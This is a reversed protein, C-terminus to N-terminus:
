KVIIADLLHKVEQRFKWDSAFGIFSRAYKLHKGSAYIQSSSMQFKFNKFFTSFLQFNRFRWKIMWLSHYILFDWIDTWKQHFRFIEKLILTFIMWFTVLSSFESLWVCISRAVTSNSKPSVTQFVPFNLPMTRSGVNHGTLYKNLRNFHTSEMGYNKSFDLDGEAPFSDFMTATTCALHLPPVSELM